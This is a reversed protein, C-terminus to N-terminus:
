AKQRVTEVTMEEKFAQKRKSKGRSKKKDKERREKDRKKKKMELERTHVNTHENSDGGEQGRGTIARQNEQARETRVGHGVICGEKGTL